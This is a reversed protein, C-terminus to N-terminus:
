GNILVNLDLDLLSALQILERLKFQGRNLKTKFTAYNMDIAEAVDKQTMKKLEIADKLYLSVNFNEIPVWTNIMPSYAYKSKPKVANTHLLVEFSTREKVLEHFTEPKGKNKKYIIVPEEEAEIREIMSEIHEIEEESFETILTLSANRVVEMAMMIEIGKKKTTLYPVDTWYERKELKIEGFKKLRKIIEEKKMKKM